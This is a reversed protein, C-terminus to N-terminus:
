QAIALSTGFSKYKMIDKMLIRIQPTKRIRKKKVSTVYELAKKFHQDEEEEKALIFMSRILKDSTISISEAENEWRSVTVKSVDFLEAFEKAKLGMEKRLFRLEKGNLPKPNKIILASILGHLDLIRPIVPFEKGCRCSYFPISILIVNDLGSERYHHEGNTKSMKKGCEPCIM